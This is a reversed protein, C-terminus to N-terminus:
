SSNGEGTPLDNPHMRGLVDSFVKGSKMLHRRLSFDYRRAPTYMLCGAAITPQVGYRLLVFTGSQKRLWIVIRSLFEQNPDSSFTFRIVPAHDKLHNLWRSLAKLTDISVDLKNESVLSALNSSVDPRQEFDVGEQQRIGNEVYADLVEELNRLTNVLETKTAISSPLRLQDM